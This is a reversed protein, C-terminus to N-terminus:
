PAMQGSPTPTTSNPVGALHDAGSRPERLGDGPGHGRQHTARIEDRIVHWGAIFSSRFFQVPPFDAFEDVPLSSEQLSMGFEPFTEILIATVEPDLHGPEVSFPGAMLEEFTSWNITADMDRGVLGLIDLPIRAGGALLRVPYGRDRSLEHIAAALTVGALEALGSLRLDGELGQTRKLHDGYIGTIPSGFIPPRTGAACTAALYRQNAEVIQDLSFVETVIVPHGARVLAEMAQLGAATAPVKPVVNPAFERARLAEMEIVAADVDLEPNGQLSVFGRRGGSANFLPLLREALKQVMLAQVLDVSEDEGLHLKAVQDITPLIEEPRRRLLSACFAPNTTVGAADVAIARDLEDLTPNNVWVRTPTSGLRAFFDATM